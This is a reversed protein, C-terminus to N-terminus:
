RSAAPGVPKWLHDTLRALGARDLTADRRGAGYRRRFLQPFQSYFTRMSNLEAKWAWLAPGTTARQWDHLWRVRPDLAVAMGERRARLGFEHDEYYLFYSDDWGGLARVADTRGAVVAGMAWAIYTPVALGTRAYEDGKESEPKARNRVKASLYPIGRANAQETGDPNLLQPAALGGGREITEELSAHWDSGSVTVDPNVFAVYETDVAALGLNNGHSFGRNGGSEIVPDAVERARAVTGDTSSNDVVM